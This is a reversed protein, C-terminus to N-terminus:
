FNGSGPHPFWFGVSDGVVSRILFAFWDLNGILAVLETALAISYLVFDIRREDVIVIHQQERQVYGPVVPCRHGILADLFHGDTFLGGSPDHHLVGRLTAVRGAVGPLEVDAFVLAELLEDVVTGSLPEGTKIGSRPLAIFLGTGQKM